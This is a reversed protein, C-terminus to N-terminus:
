NPCGAQPETRLARLVSPRHRLPTDIDVLLTGDPRRFQWRGSTHRSLSWGGEHVLRHHYGCLLALNALDTRGNRTWWQVHHADCWTAPRDCGPVVCGGDRIVLAKWQAPTVTRTSRGLDLLEGGPGLLVRAVTSDCALRQLTANRIVGGYGLDAAARREADLLGDAGCLVLLQPRVKRGPAVVDADLARRCLEGFADHYRQAASRTDGPLPAALPDLAARALEAVEASLWAKMATMTDLSDALTLERRADPQSEDKDEGENKRLAERWHRLEAAFRQPDALKAIRVLEPEVDQTAELSTEKALLAIVRAQDRGIDGSRWATATEPLDRLGRALQVDGSAEHAPM